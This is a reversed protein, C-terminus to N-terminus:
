SNFNENLKELRYKWGDAGVRKKSLALNSKEM